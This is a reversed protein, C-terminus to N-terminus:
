RLRERTSSRINHTTAVSIYEAEPRTDGGLDDWKPGGVAGLLVADSEKYRAVTDVPLPEGLQDIACGGAQLKDPTELQSEKEPLCEAYKRRGPQTFYGGHTDSKAIRM